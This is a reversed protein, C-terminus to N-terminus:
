RKCTYQTEAPNVSTLGADTARALVCKRMEAIGGHTANAHEVLARRNVFGKGCLQCVRPATLTPLAFPEQADQQFHPVEPCHLSEVPVYPLKQQILLTRESLEVPQSASIYALWICLSLLRQYPLAQFRHLLDHATMFAFFDKVLASAEFSYKAHKRTFSWLWNGGGETAAQQVAELSAVFADEAIGTAAASPESVGTRILELVDEDRLPLESLSDKWGELVAFHRALDFKMQPARGRAHKMFLDPCFPIEAFTSDNRLADAM